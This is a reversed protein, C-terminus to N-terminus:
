HAKYKLPPFYAQKLFMSILLKDEDTLEWGLLARLAEQNM